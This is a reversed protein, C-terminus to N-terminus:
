QCKIRVVAQALGSLESRTVVSKKGFKLGGGDRSSPLPIDYYSLMRRLAAGPVGLGKSDDTDLKGIIMAVADGRDNLVAGGSEGPRLVADIEAVPGGFHGSGAAIMRATRWDAGEDSARAGPYSMVIANSRDEGPEVRLVTPAPADARLLAADLRTDVGLLTAGVSGFAPHEISPTRCGVMVHANTLVTGDWAVFFGSAVVSLGKPPASRTRRRVVRELPESAGHALGGQLMATRISAPSQVSSAGDAGSSACASTLMCLASLLVSGAFRLDAAVKMAM